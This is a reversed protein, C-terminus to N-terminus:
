TTLRARLGVVHPYDRDAALEEFREVVFSASTFADFLGHLTLHVAGVRIRVGDPNGVGFASGDYRDSRRYGESLEPVGEASVYLSHPGIFCPHAGIYVLPAGRRLVRAVEAVAAGFDDIDTHTWVSIAADFSADDFPLADARAELVEVGRTRAVELLDSSVDVGVVSWGLEAVAATPLGTGCGLDLCSGNGPGLLRALAQIEDDSLVPRFEEYWEALGDYRPLNSM